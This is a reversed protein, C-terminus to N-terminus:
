LYLNVLLGKIEGMKELLQVSTAQNELVQNSLEVLKEDVQKILKLRKERGNPLSGRHEDLSFGNQVVEQLFNRITQKYAILDQVTRSHSLRTEHKELEGLLSQLKEQSLDSQKKHLMQQFSPTEIGKERIPLFRDQSVGLSQNIKM